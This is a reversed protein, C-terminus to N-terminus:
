IRGRLIRRRTADIRAASVLSGEPTMREAIPVAVDQGFNATGEAVAITTLLARLRFSWGAAIASWTRGAAFQLRMVPIVEHAALDVARDIIPL